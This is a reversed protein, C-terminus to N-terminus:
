HDCYNGTFSLTGNLFGEVLEKARLKPAGVFANVKNANFLQIAKQGMGGAIIDSVDKEALWKPLVGPEHPPPILKETSVVQGDNVTSIYFYQCHGFHADLVDENDVPIAIKKIM